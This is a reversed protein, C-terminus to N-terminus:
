KIMKEFIKSIGRNCRISLRERSYRLCSNFVAEWFDQKTM